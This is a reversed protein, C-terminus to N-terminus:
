RPRDGELTVRTMVRRHGAFDDVAYHMTARNDWFTLSGPRWQVRCQFEPRTAHLCLWDILPQSEEASMDRFGITHLPNLYLAKEGTEPHTRVVPHEVRTVTAQQAVEMRKVGQKFRAAGPGYTRENSFVAVLGDLMRKMGRSLTRYAARMDAFLTDGGYPPLETAYLMTALAPREAYSLDSHWGNGFHHVDDPEKVIRFVDLHGDLPKVYPHRNLAGFRRAFAALSGPDLSQDRFVLVLHELLGARIAAVTRDDLAGSLDVGSVEVGLSGSIRRFRLGNPASRVPPTEEPHM